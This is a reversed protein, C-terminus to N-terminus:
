ESSSIAQESILGAAYNWPLLDEIDNVKRKPLENLLYELYIQPNVDLKKCTSTLTYMMAIRHASDSSGAFLYNKRGLAVPRIANEVANNDIQLYGQETYRKLKDWRELSYRIANGIASEPLVHPAQEKMWAHMKDLIPISKDQREAYIITEGKDKIDREIAYLAQIMDLMELARKKDNNKSEDFKRRAHAMCACQEIGYGPAVADYVRYGDSQVIGNFSKLLEKPGSQDRGKRYDFFVINDPPSHYVWLYGQHAGKKGESGLLVKIPTEDIQVYHSMLVKQVILEYIPTLYKAASATWEYVTSEALEVGFRKFQKIQRQIPLHDVYKGILLHALLGPGANGRDIARPPLAAIIVRGEKTAYKPRVTRLVYIEPTKLELVETIEEGIKVMETTDMDPEIVTIVRKLHAPIATRIPKSKEVQARTHAAVEKTQVVPSETAAIGLDLLLQNTEAESLHRESKAGYIQKLLQAIRAQLILNSTELENFRSQLSLFGDYEAQSIQVEEQV